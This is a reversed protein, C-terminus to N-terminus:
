NYERVFFLVVHSKGKYGALGVRRGDNTTLSFDPAPFGVELDASM